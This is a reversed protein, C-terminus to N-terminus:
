EITGLRCGQAGNFLLVTEGNILGEKVLIGDDDEHILKQELLWRRFVGPLCGYKSHPTIWKGLRHLAINFITCELIHCSEDILLVDWSSGHPSTLGPIGNRERAEDYHDRRTTKTTTFLSAKTARMDVRIQIINENTLPMPTQRALLSPDEDFAKVPSCAISMGGDRSVLIRM